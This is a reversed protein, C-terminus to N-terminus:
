EGVAKEYGNLGTSIQSCLMDSVDCLAVSNQFFMHVCANCQLKIGLRPSKVDVLGQFPLQRLKTIM